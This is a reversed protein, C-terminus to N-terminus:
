IKKWRKRCQTRRKLQKKNTRCVKQSRELRPLGASHRRERHFRVSREIDRETLGLERAKKQWKPGHGNKGSKGPVLAHAIEHLVVDRIRSHPGDLVSSSIVLRRSDLLCVGQAKVGDFVLHFNGSIEFTWSGLGHKKLLRAAVFCAYGYNPSDAPNKRRLSVLYEWRDDEDLEYEEEKVPTM